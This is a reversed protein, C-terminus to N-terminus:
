GMGKAAKGKAQLAQIHPRYEPMDKVLEVLRPASLASWLSLSIMQLGVKRVVEDELSQYLHILFTLYADKESLTLADLPMRFVAHLFQPFVDERQHFTGAYLSV